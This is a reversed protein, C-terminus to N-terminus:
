TDVKIVDGVTPNKVAWDSLPLDVSNSTFNCHHSIANNFPAYLKGQKSGCKFNWKNPM